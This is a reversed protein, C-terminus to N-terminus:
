LASRQQSQQARRATARPSAPKDTRWPQFFLKAPLVTETRELYLARQRRPVDSQCASCLSGSHRLVDPGAQCLPMVFPYRSNSKIATMAFTLKGKAEDIASVTDARLRQEIAAWSMGFWGFPATAETEQRAGVPAKTAVASPPVPERTGESNPQGSSVAAVIEAGMSYNTTMGEFPETKPVAFFPRKAVFITPYPTIQVWAVSKATGALHSVISKWRDTEMADFAVVVRSAAHVEASGDNGVPLSPFASIPPSVAEIKAFSPLANEDVTSSGEAVPPVTWPTVEMHNAWLSRDMMVDLPGFPMSVPLGRLAVSQSFLHPYSRWSPLEWFHERLFQSYSATAPLMSRHKMEVFAIHLLHYVRRFVVDYVRRQLPSAGMFKEAVGFAWAFESFRCLECCADLRIQPNFRRRRTTQPLRPLELSQLEWSEEDSSVDGESQAHIHKKKPIWRHVLRPPLVAPPIKTTFLEGFSECLEYVIRRVVAPGSYFEKNAGVGLLECVVKHLSGGATQEMHESLPNHMRTIWGRVVAAIKTVSSHQQESVVQAAIVDERRHRAERKQADFLRKAETDTPPPPSKSGRIANDTNSADVPPETPAATAPPAAQTSHQRLQERLDFRVRRSEHVQKWYQSAVVHKTRDHDRIIERVREQERGFRQVEFIPYMAEAFVTLIERLRTECVFDVVLTPTLVAGDSLGIDRDVLDFLESDLTALENANGPWTYEVVETNAIARIEAIVSHLSRCATVGAGKLAACVKEQNSLLPAVGEGESLSSSMSEVGRAHLGLTSSEATRLQQHQQAGLSSICAHGDLGVFVIEVDPEACLFVRVQQGDKKHESIFENVSDILMNSSPAVLGCLPLGEVLIKPTRKGSCSRVVFKTDDHAVNFANLHLQPNHKRLYDVVFAVPFKPHAKIVEEMAKAVISKLNENLFNKAETGCSTNNKGALSSLAQLYMPTEM